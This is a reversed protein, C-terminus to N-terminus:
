ACSHSFPFVNPGVVVLRSRLLPGFVEVPLEKTGDRNATMHDRWTKSDAGLQLLHYATHAFLCPGPRTKPHDDWRLPSWFCRMQEACKDSAIDQSCLSRLACM